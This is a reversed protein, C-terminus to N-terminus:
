NFSSLRSRPRVQRMEVLGAINPDLTMLVQSPTHFSIFKYLPFTKMTPLFPMSEHMAQDVSMVFDPAETAKM